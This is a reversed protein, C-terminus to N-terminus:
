VTRRRLGRLRKINATQLAKKAVEYAETVEQVATLYIDISDEETDFQDTFRYVFDSFRDELERQYARDISALIVEIDM